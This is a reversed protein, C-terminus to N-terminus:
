NNWKFDIGLFNYLRKNYPEYFDILKERLDKNLNKNISINYKEYSNLQFDPLNLFKLTTSLFKSPNEFFDESKIILIKKKSFYKFWNQIQNLYIGSAIYSFREWKHIVYNDNILMEEIEKGLRKFENEIVKEFSDKEIGRQLNFSYYSYAREVPNRLLMILKINPRILQIRKPVLPHFMYSASAEGTLFKFKYKKSLYLQKFSLPFFSKYWKLGHNYYYDFYHIEKKQPPIIYPHKILYNYLSTTGSRAAGVIIFDPLTRLPGTILRFLNNTNFYSRFM